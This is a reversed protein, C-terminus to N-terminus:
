GLQPSDAPALIEPPQPTSQKRFYRRLWVLYGLFILSFLFGWWLIVHSRTLPNAHLTELQGQPLGMRSYVDMLNTRTYTLAMSVIRFLSAFIAIWWAAIQLRFLGFALCMDIAAFALFCGIGPIGGLYRGFFPFYPFSIAASLLQLSALFLISSAGLVPLPTRDTWREVPDRDRCTLEVDKRSYFIVFAVPVVILFFALFIIVLTVIIALVVTSVAATSADPATQQARAIGAKMAVPLIATMLITILAGMVLGYWSFVLTLARAWRKAQTSGIGLIILTAAIVAYNVIGSALQLPRSAVGGPVLRSVFAGLMVLPIMLSCLLGLIIQVIGFIMLGGSRDTFAPPVPAPPESLAGPNLSTLPTPEPTPQPTSQPPPQSFDDM